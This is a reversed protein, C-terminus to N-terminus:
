VSDDSDVDIVKARMIDNEETLAALLERLSDAEEEIEQHCAIADLLEDNEEKLIRIQNRLTSKSASSSSSTSSSSDEDDEDEAETDEMKRKEGQPPPLALLGPPEPPALALLPKQPKPATTNSGRKATSLNQALVDDAESTWEGNMGSMLKLKKQVTVLASNISERTMPMRSEHVVITGEKVKRVVDEPSPRPKTDPRVPASPILHLYAAGNNLSVHGKVNMSMVGLIILCFTPLFM